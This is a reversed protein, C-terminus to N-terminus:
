AAFGLHKILERGIYETYAPPIAQCMEDRNMWDIGMAEAAEARYAMRHKGSVGGHGYVGIAHRGRHRCNLQAVPFTTEFIRHRRLYEDGRCGLGFMSGCLYAGWRGDLSPQTVMPATEVNEIAYPLGVEILTDRVQGILLAYGREKHMVALKSYGQCEPSAHIADFERGHEAVYEQADAKVFGFPYRPQPRNDVGVIEDFGARHYGM